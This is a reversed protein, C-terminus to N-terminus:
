LFRLRTKRGTLRDHMLDLGTDALLARFDDPLPAEFQMKRGAIPHTFALRWAHLAQRPFERLRAALEVNAIDRWRPLGYSPDGVLPWGAAALHVRIQHMRGTLLRCRVLSLEIPAAKVHALREYKTLSAAGDTASAVVRRRDKRDRALRLDISGRAPTIKGYVVALYDKESRGSALSRQLAAHAASTKAIVVVGSTLKDLRQVLSPRSGDPWERAHWMLANMVTGEDHHFTPHMVLGAPKNIVLFYDDEFLIDLAIAQPSLAKRPAIADGPLLVRIESGASLRVSARRVAAGNILVRGEAIWTQVRTRTLRPVDALRRRLVLDLRVNADGRDATFTRM